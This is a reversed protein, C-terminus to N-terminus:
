KAYKATWDKATQLAKKPDRRWDEAIDAALPDDINPASMLIQLFCCFLPSLTTLVPTAACHRLRTTCHEAHRSNTCRYFVRVMISLLVHRIQLAPTWKDKLTDLCIRGLKDINPHYIKTLFRVQAGCSRPSRVHVRLKACNVLIVFHSHFDCCALWM